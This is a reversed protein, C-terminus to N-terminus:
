KRLLLYLLALLVLCLLFQINGLALMILNHRKDKEAQATTFGIMYRVMICLSLFEFITAVIFADMLLWAPIVFM